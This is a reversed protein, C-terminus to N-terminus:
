VPGPQLLQAASRNEGGAQPIIYCCGVEPAHYHILKRDTKKKKVGRQPGQVTDVEENQTKFSRSRLQSM